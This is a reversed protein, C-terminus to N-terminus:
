ICEDKNETDVVGKRLIYFRGKQTPKVIPEGGSLHGIKPPPEAGGM